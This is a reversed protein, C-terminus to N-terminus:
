PIMDEHAYQPFCQCQIHTTFSFRFYSHASVTNVWISEYTTQFFTPKSNCLNKPKKAAKPLPIQLLQTEIYFYFSLTYASTHRINQQQKQKLVVLNRNQWISDASLLVWDNPQIQTKTCIDNSKDWKINVLSNGLNRGETTARLSGM